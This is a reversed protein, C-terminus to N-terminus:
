EITSPLWNLQFLDNNIFSSLIEKSVNIKCLTIHSTITAWVNKDNDLHLRVYLKRERIMWRMSAKPRIDQLWVLWTNEAMNFCM